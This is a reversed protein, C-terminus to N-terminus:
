GAPRGDWERQLQEVQDLIALLREGFPTLHYEVRPPVEPFSRKELIHFRVLKVLREALVKATLGAASRELQGPRRVGTRVQALVHLTWTCGVCDEIIHAVDAGPTAGATM